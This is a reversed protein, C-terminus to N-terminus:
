FQCLWKGFLVTTTYIMKESHITGDFTKHSNIYRDCRMADGVVGCELCPNEAPSRVPSDFRYANYKM